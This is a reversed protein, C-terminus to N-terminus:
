EWEMSGTLVGCERSDVNVDEAGALMTCCSWAAGLVYLEMKNM